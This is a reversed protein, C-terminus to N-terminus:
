PELQAHVCDSKFRVRIQGLDTTRRASLGNQRIDASKDALRIDVQRITSIRWFPYTRPYIQSKQTGGTNM